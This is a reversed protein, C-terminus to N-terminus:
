PSPQRLGAVPQHPVIQRLSSVASPPRSVQEQRLRLTKQPRERSNTRVPKTVIVASRRLNSRRSRSPKVRAKTQDATLVQQVDPLDSFPLTTRKQGVAQAPPTLTPTQLPRSVQAPVQVILLTGLSLALIQRILKSAHFKRPPAAPNSLFM